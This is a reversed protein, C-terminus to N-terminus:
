KKLYFVNRKFEDGSRYSYFLNSHCQTCYNAYNILYSSGFVSKIQDTNNLLLDFHTNTEQDIEYCCVCSHPGYWVNVFNVGQKKLFIMVNKTISDLTGVRGAHIVAIFPDAKILIPLCDATKVSLIVNKSSTIVADSDLEYISGVRSFPDANQHCVQPKFIGNKANNQVHEKNSSILQLGDQNFEIHSWVNSHTQNMVILPVNSQDSNGIFQDKLNCMGGLPLALLSDSLVAQNMKSV